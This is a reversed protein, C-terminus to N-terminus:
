NEALGWNQLSQLVDLRATVFSVLHLSAGQVQPRSSHSLAQALTAQQPCLSLRRCSWTSSFLFLGQRLSLSLPPLIARPGPRGGESREKKGEPEAIEEGQRLFILVRGGLWGLAPSFGSQGAGSTSLIGGLRGVSLLLRAGATGRHSGQGPMGRVSAPLPRTRASSPRAAAGALSEEEEREWSSSSM